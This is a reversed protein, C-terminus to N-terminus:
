VIRKDLEEDLSSLAETRNWVYPPYYVNINAESLTVLEKGAQLCDDNPLYSSLSYLGAIQTMYWDPDDLCRHQLLMAYTPIYFQTLIGKKDVWMQLFGLLTDPSGIIDYKDGYIQRKAEWDIYRQIFIENPDAGEAIEDLVSELFECAEDSDAPLITDSM